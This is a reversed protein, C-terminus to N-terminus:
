LWRCRIERGELVDLQFKPHKLSFWRIGANDEEVGHLNLSLKEIKLM